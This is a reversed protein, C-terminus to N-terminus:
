ILWERVQNETLTTSSNIKLLLENYDLELISSLGQAVIEKNSNEKIISPDIYVKDTEYSIALPNGKSDYINGRKASITETLTQQSTALTQLHEGDIFQLYGVRALLAIM